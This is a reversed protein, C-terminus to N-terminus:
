WIVPGAALNGCRSPMEIGPVAVFHSQNGVDIGAAHPHVVEFGPDNKELRRGLERRQRRNMRELNIREFTSQTRKAMVYQEQGNL